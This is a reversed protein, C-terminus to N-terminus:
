KKASKQIEAVIAMFEPDGRLAAFDADEAIDSGTFGWDAIRRLM